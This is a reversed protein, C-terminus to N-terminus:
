GGAANTTLPPYRIAVSGGRPSRVPDKPLDGIANSADIADILADTVEKTTAMGGVDTAFISERCESGCVLFNCM